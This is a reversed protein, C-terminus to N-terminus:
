GLQLGQHVSRNVRYNEDVIRAADAFDVDGCLTQEAVRLLFEEAGIRRQQKSVRM